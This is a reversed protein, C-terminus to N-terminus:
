GGAAAPLPADRGFTPGTRKPPPAHPAACMPASFTGSASRTDISQTAPVPM